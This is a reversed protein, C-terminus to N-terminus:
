IVKKAEFHEVKSKNIKEPEQRKTRKILSVIVGFNKM